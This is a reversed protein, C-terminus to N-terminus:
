SVTLNATDSGLSFVKGSNIVGAPPPGPQPAQWADSGVLENSNIDRNGNDIVFWALINRFDVSSTANETTGSPITQTDLYSRGSSVPEFRYTTSKVRFSKWQSFVDDVRSNLARFNSVPVTADFFRFNQSM